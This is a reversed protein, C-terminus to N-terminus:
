PDSTMYEKNSHRVILLSSWWQPALPWGTPDSTMTLEDIKIQTPKSPPQSSALQQSNAFRCLFTNKIFPSLLLNCRQRHMTIGPLAPSGEATCECSSFLKTPYFPTPAWMVVVELVSVHWNTQLDIIWSSNKEGDVLTGCDVFAPVKWGKKM